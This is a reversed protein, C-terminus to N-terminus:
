LLLLLLNIFYISTVSTQDLEFFNGVQGLLTFIGVSVMVTSLFLVGGLLFKIKGWGSSSSLFFSLVILEGM